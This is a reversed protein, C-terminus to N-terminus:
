WGRGQLVTSERSTQRCMDRVSVVVHRSSITLRLMRASPSGRFTSKRNGARAEPSTRGPELAHAMAPLWVAEPLGRSELSMCRSYESGPMQYM